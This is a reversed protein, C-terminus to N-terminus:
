LSIFPFPKKEKEKEVDTLWRSDSWPQCSDPMQILGSDPPPSRPDSLNRTSCVDRAERFVPRGLGQCGALLSQRYHACDSEPYIFLFVLSFFFRPARLDIRWNKVWNRTESLPISPQFPIPFYLLFLLPPVSLIKQMARDSKKYRWLGGFIKIGQKKIYM